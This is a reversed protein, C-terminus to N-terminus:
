MKKGRNKIKIGKKGSINRMVDGVLNGSLAVRKISLVL